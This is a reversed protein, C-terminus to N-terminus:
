GEGVIFEEFAKFSAYVVINGVLDSTWEFRAYAYIM